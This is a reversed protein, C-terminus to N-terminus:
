ESPIGLHGLIRNLKDSQDNLRDYVNVVTRDHAAQAEAGHAQDREIAIIKDRHARAEATREVMEDELDDIRKVLPMVANNVKHTAREDIKRLTYENIRQSDQDSELAKKLRLIKPILAIALALIAVVLILRTADAKILADFWEV